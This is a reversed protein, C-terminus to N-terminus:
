HTEVFPRRLYAHQSKYEFNLQNNSYIVTSGKNSLCDISRKRLLNIVGYSFGHTNSIVSAYRQFSVFIASDWLIFIFVFLFM